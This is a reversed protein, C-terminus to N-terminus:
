ATQKRRLPGDQFEKQQNNLPTVELMIQASIGM